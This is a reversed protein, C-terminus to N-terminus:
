KEDKKLLGLLKEQLPEEGEPPGFDFYELPTESALKDASVMKRTNFFNKHQPYALHFLRAYFSRHNNNIRVETTKRLEIQHHWRIREFIASVSYTERGSSHIVEKAFRQFM